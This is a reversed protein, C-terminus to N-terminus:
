GDARIIDAAKEAIMIVPANTNGSTLTPMISADVVRLGDLGHVRLAADVVAGNAADPGMRCTGIPHYLTAGTAAAYDLLDEDSAVEAGPTVERVVHDKIADAAMLDRAMRMGALLIRRDTEQTLFNPQIAPGQFPDASRAHITGRSEPRLQCTAITFGPFDDFVRTKPDRFSAHAIHYQIDPGELAPDSKVFGAVIGAPMTLAGTRTFAYKLAEGVLGIGRTKENLSAVGTLQWTHRAAYHDQLNTGVGKLPHRVEIGLPQLVAGDGIGSLELLQPSQVGGASLIVARRAKARRMEGKAGGVHYDVGTARKGELVVRAAHARTAVDLNPRRRVPNLFAAKVSHRLGNKQTLEYYAFGEQSAGNYDHFTAYGLEGGARIAADLAEYTVTPPAVNLNGGRGRYRADEGDAGAERNESKRFYPLVDDYSWGLNGMQAWGDYDRAQGRVYLMGNISSSGGLVKGRPVPIPRDKTQPHPQTDFMWNVAPDVMTKVYGVPLHIWPNRDEGGAELLLVTTGADESLRNALVCGASGAGVIIYDFEM